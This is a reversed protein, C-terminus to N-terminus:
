NRFYKTSQWKQAFNYLDDILKWTKRPNLKNVELNHTFHQKKASKIANNVENRAQKYRQWATASNEQIAIKKM